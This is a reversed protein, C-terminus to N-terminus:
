LSSVSNKDLRAMAKLYVFGFVGAILSSLLVAIRSSVVTEADKFALLLIGMPKGAVLGLLIGLSNRSTM